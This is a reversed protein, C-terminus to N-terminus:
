RLTPSHFFEGIKGCAPSTFDSKALFRLLWLTVSSHENEGEQVADVATSLHLRVPASSGRDTERDHAKVDHELIVMRKTRAM